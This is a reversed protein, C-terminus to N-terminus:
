EVEAPAAGAKAHKGEHWDQYTKSTGEVRWSGLWLKPHVQAQSLKSSENLIRRSEYIDGSPILVHRCRFSILNKPKELSHFDDPRAVGFRNANCTRIQIGKV